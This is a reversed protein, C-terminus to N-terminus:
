ALRKAFRELAFLCVLGIAIEFACVQVLEKDPLGDIAMSYIRAVGYSLYLVTSILLAPFTLRSIFAGFVILIGFALIAGGPARTENLLSPTSELTIGSTAHLVEPMFLTAIGVLVGIGGAILLTTKTLVSNKM